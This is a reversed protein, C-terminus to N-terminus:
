GGARQVPRRPEPAVVMATTARPEDGGWVVRNGLV